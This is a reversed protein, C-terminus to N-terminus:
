ANKKTENKINKEYIYMIQIKYSYKNRKKTLKTNLLLSSNLLALDKIILLMAIKPPYM